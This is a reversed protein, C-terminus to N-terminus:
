VLGMVSLKEKSIGLIDKNQAVNQSKYKNILEGPKTDVRGMKFKRKVAGLKNNIGRMRLKAILKSQEQPTITTKGTKKYVQKETMKPHKVHMLEHKITSALEKKDGKHAKINIEVKVPKKDKFTTAGYDGKMKNNTVVPIKKKRKKSAQDWEAVRSKGGLAKVGNATHGWKRQKDSKWPM